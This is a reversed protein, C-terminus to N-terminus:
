LPPSVIKKTTVKLRKNVLDAIPSLKAGEGAAATEAVLQPELGGNQVQEPAPATELLAASSSHLPSSEADDSPKTKNARRKKQSKSLTPPLAGPVIRPTTSSQSMPSPIKHTHTLVFSTTPHFIHALNITYTVQSVPAGSEWFIRPPFSQEPFHRTYKPHLAGSEINHRSPILYKTCIIM